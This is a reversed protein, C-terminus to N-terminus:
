EKGFHDGPQEGHQERFWQVIRTARGDLSNEAVCRRHGALRIAEREEENDLYYRTKEVLEEASGFCAVEKGEDYFQLLEHTREHLMFGGSAPIHFTRSTTLDGSSAGERQESLIAINIRSAGIALPYTDGLLHRGGVVGRIQPATAKEWQSGWIRLRIHPSVAALSALMAEKKPSWTGIFSADAGLAEMDDPRVCLPRHIDPDFGHPLFEASELGLIRQMDAIGFSKTTFIHHYLALGERVDKGHCLFSVDPYFNVLCLGRARLDRLLAPSVGNGKFVLVCDPRFVEVEDLVARQFAMHCM